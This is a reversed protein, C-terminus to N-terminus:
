PSPFISIFSSHSFRVRRAATCSSVLTCARLLSSSSRTSATSTPTRSSFRLLPPVGALTTSSIRSWVRSTARASPSISSVTSPLARGTSPTRSCECLISEVNFMWLGAAPIVELVLSRSCFCPMAKPPLPSPRCVKFVSGKGKRQGRIVRGMTRSLRYSLLLFLSFPRFRRWGPYIRAAFCCPHRCKTTSVTWFM